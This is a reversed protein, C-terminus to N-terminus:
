AVWIVPFSSQLVGAAARNLQSVTLVERASQANPLGSAPFEPNEPGFRDVLRVM